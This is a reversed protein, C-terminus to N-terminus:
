LRYRASLTCLGETVHTGVSFMNSANMFEFFCCSNFTWMASLEEIVLLSELSVHFLKMVNMGDFNSAFHTRSSKRKLVFKVSMDLPIM